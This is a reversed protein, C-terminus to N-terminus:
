YSRRSSHGGLDSQGVPRLGFQPQHGSRAFTPSLLVFAVLATALPGSLSYARCRMLANEKGHSFERWMAPLKQSDKGGM